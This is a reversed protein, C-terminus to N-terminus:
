LIAWSIACGVAIGVACEVGFAMCGIAAASGLFSGDTMDDLKGKVCQGWARANANSQAIRVIEGDRSEVAYMLLHNADFFELKFNNNGELITAKRIMAFDYPNNDKDLYSIFDYTVKSTSNPSKFTIAKQQISKDFNYQDAKSYDFEINELPDNEIRSQAKSEKLSSRFHSSIKATIASNNFTQVSVAAPFIGTNVNLMRLDSKEVISSDTCQLFVFLLPLLIIKEYDKHNTQNL